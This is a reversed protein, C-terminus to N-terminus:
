QMLLGPKVDLDIGRVEAGSALLTLYQQISKHQVYEALYRSISTRVSEFPLAEGAIRREVLVIHFGYRTRVLGPLLGIHENDFVAADFEPVSAGRTLQGLNGGVQGSPCNSMDRAMQEFCEPHAALEHHAEEARARVHTMAGGDTLAFLIHRALVLGASRFKPLNSEYYRRCEDDSPSPVRCDKQVLQDVIEDSLDGGAAILGDALAKQTLLERVVLARRAAREPDPADRHLEREADIASSDIVVGNVSLEGACADDQRMASGLTGISDAFVALGGLDDPGDFGGAEELEDLGERGSPGAADSVGAAKAYGGRKVETSDM